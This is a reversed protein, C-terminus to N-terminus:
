GKKNFRSGPAMIMWHNVYQNTVQRKVKSNKLETAIRSHELRAEQLVQRSRSLIEKQKDAILQIMPALTSRTTKLNPESSLLMSDVATLEEMLAERERLMRRLGRMERKHIFRYQIETNAAIRDLIERKKTLFCNTKEWEEM